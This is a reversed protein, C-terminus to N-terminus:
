FNTAIYNSVKKKSPSYSSGNGEWPDAGTGTANLAFVPDLCPSTNDVSSKLKLNKLM